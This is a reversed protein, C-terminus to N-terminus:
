GILNYCNKKSYHELNKDNVEYIELIFKHLYDINITLRYQDLKLSKVERKRIVDLNDYKLIIEQKIKSNSLYLIHYRLLEKYIKGINVGDKKFFKKQFSVEFRTLRYGLKEKETKDYLCAHLVASAKHKSNKFKEIYRTTSFPQEENAKWYKTTAHKKTCLVLINDFKTFINLAVDLQTIEFIIKKTNLYSVILLLSDRSVRDLLPQYRKLGALKISLYWVKNVKDNEKTLYSFSGKGITAVTKYNYCFLTDDNSYLKNHELRNAIEAKAIKCSEENDFNCQLAITDVSTETKM